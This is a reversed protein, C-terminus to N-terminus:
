WDDQKKQVSGTVKILDGLDLSGKVGKESVSVSGKGGGVKGSASGEVEGDPGGSAEVKVGGLKAEGTVKGGLTITLKQDDGGFELKDPVKSGLNALAALTEKKTGESDSLDRHEM